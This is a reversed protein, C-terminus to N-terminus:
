FSWKIGMYPGHIAMDDVAPTDKGFDWKIYRYGVVGTFKEYDYSFNAVAQWTLSSGGGGVDAYYNLYHGDPYNHRGKFGIVGDWVDGQASNKRKLDNLKTTSDLKINIYRAGATIDFIDKGNDFVNYGGIFNLVPSQLGIVVKGTVPRGLFEGKRRQSDSLDMYIVDALM